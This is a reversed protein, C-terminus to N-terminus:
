RHAHGDPGGTRVARQRLQRRAGDVVVGALVLVMGAIGLVHALHEAGIGHHGAHGGSFLHTVVDLGGAGVMAVLGLRSVRPMRGLDRRV